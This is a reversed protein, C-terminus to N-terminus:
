AWFGMFVWMGADDLLLFDEQDLVSLVSLFKGLGVLVELGFVLFSERFFPIVTIGSSSCSMLSESSLLFYRSLRERRHGGPLGRDCVAKDMHRWWIEANALKCFGMILAIRETAKRKSSISSVWMLLVRLSASSLWIVSNVESM